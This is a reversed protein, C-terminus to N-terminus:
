HTALTDRYMGRSAETMGWEEEEGDMEREEEEDQRNGASSM